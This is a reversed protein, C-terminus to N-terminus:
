RSFADEPIDRLPPADAPPPVVFRAPAETGLPEAPFAQTRMGAMFMGCRRSWLDGAAVQVTVAGGPLDSLTASASPAVFMTAIPQDQADRLRAVLSVYGRNDIEVRTAGHGEHSLVEGSRPTTGANQICFARRAEGVGGTTLRAAAVFGVQGDPLRVEVFGRDPVQRLAEVSTFPAIEGVPAYSARAADFRYLTAPDGAPLVYHTPSVGAAPAPPDPAVAPPPPRPPAPKPMVDALKPTVAAPARGPGQAGATLGFRLLAESLAVVLVVFLAAWAPLPLARWWGPPAPPIAFPDPPAMPPPTYEAAGPARAAAPGAGARAESETEADAETEEEGQDYARRRLPDTLVDYAERARIFAAADGTRPVDPHLRKAERRFAAAIERAGAGPGIGLRRYYGKPDAGNSM